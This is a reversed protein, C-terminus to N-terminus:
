RVPVHTNLVRPSPQKDVVESHMIELMTTVKNEKSRVTTKNLLMTLIEYMWNTGSFLNIRTYCDNTGPFMLCM